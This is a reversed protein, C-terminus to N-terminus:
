TSANPIDEAADEARVTVELPAMRDGEAEAVGPPLIMGKYVWVRVGIKGMLTNAESVAFDIDARLTHLPVRGMMVKERRAIEAGGLRGKVIIRIGKAGAQMSRTATQTMARRHGVRRELQEAVNRSVLMADLEPQRIEQVAVRIRSPTVAELSKRLEEVRQGQRGIIIGPRATWITLTAEQANREIEVRAIGAEPYFAAVAQRLRLDDLLTARMTPATPAFWHAQWDATIGLRFGIPHTKHGM